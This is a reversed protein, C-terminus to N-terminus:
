MVLEQRTNNFGRIRPPENVAEPASTAVNDRNSADVLEEHLTDSSWLIIFFQILIVILLLCCGRDGDATSKV